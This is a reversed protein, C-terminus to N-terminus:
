SDRYEATTATTVTYRKSYKSRAEKLTKLRSLNDLPEVERGGFYMSKFDNFDNYAFIKDKPLCCDIPVEIILEKDIVEVQTEFFGGGGIVEQHRIIM